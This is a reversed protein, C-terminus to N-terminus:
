SRAFIEAWALSVGLEALPVHGGPAITEDSWGRADTRTLLRITEAVPDVYIIAQLSAIACYEHLKVGEDQDKTSPSLVEVVVRPDDFELLKDNETSDRGCFVSVDPYRLSLDHTRIGMDPGYPSCPSGRLAVFLAGFINKQVRAHEGSGGAMMRIRGNDLEVRRGEDGSFELQLFEDVTLLRKASTAM